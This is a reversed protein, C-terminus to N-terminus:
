KFVQDESSSAGPSYADDDDDEVDYDGMVAAPDDTGYFQSILDGEGGGGSPAEDASVGGAADDDADNDTNEEDEQDGEVEDEQDSEALM